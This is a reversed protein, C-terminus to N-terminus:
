EQKKGGLANLQGELEKIHHNLYEESQANKHYLKATEADKIRERLAHKDRWLNLGAKAEDIQKQTVYPTKTLYAGEPKLDASVKKFTFVRVLLKELESDELPM